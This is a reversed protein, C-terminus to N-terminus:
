ERNSAMDDYEQALKPLDASADQSSDFANWSIATPFLRIISTGLDGAFNITRAVVQGNSLLISCQKTQLM